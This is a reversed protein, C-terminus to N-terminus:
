QDNLKFTTYRLHDTYIIKLGATWAIHELTKPTYFSIHTPDRMYHWKHFHVPDNKHFQTMVALIGDARLHAAFLKFYPVPDALHEVVETVTILDYKKHEYIKESAYFEDYIDMRYRARELLQALVPSPGSGFDLGDKGAPVYPFVAANLFKYFYDVYRPDEISNEHLDYTEKEASRSLRQNINRSIYECDPCYHFTEEGSLGYPLIAESRCIKCFHNM